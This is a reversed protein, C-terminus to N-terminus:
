DHDYSIRHLHKKGGLSHDKSGDKVPYERIGLWHMWWPIVRVMRVRIQIDKGSHLAAEMTVARNVSGEMKMTM